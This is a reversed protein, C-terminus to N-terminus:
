LKNLPFMRQIFHFMLRLGNLIQFNVLNHKFFQFNVMKHRFIKLNSSVLILLQLINFLM